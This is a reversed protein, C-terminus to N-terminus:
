RTGGPRGGADRGMQLCVKECERCAAVCEKMIEAQQGECTTACDRCADAYAQHAYKAYPSSRAMLTATLPLVIRDPELGRDLLALAEAATTALCTRWGGEPFLRDPGRGPTRGEEVIM